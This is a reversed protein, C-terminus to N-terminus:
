KLKGISMSLRYNGFPLIEDLLANLAEQTPMIAKLWYCGEGSIRHFEKIEPKSTILARFATHENTKMFVTIFVMLGVNLQTEDLKVTYGTILGLDELRHVRDAVAQGTLHVKNGIDKWQARANDKLCAIIQLDLSDLM